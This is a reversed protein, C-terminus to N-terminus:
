LGRLIYLGIIDRLEYILIRSYGGDDSGYSGYIGNYAQISTTVYQGKTFSILM